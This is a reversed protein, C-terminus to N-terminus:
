AGAWFKFVRREVERMSTRGSAGCSLAKRWCRRETKEAQGRVRGGVQVGVPGEAQGRVRGRVENGAKQVAM